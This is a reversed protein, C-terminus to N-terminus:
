AKNSGGGAFLNWHECSRSSFSSWVIWLVFGEWENERLSISFALGVFLPTSFLAHEAAAQRSFFSRSAGDRYIQRRRAPGQFICEQPTPFVPVRAPIAILARARFLHVSQASDRRQM